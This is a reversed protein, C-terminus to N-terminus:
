DGRLAHLPDVKTAWRAPIYAAVAAVLALLATLSAFVPPEIRIVGFVANSIAQTLLLSVGLGFTLGLLAMKLASAMVLRLVDFPRAGLAMRIGIEHTRQTVSYAMVAFIGAAALALAILGFVLMMRASSEVGSVNDSVVQELTRVDYAPTGPDISRLQQTVSRALSLPDASTRVLVASSAQPMQAFPVYTTPNPKPEFASSRIDRVVGVVRREPESSEPRGLKVRKGIPDQDPWNAHAMSESIVAVPPADPGDASSIFRGKILPVHLTRFFDPTVIQSVTSPVEGASAPPHGEATYETWNWSWGSPLSTACAVNDVSPMTQLQHLLRDYYSQIQDKKQYKEKPLAIHFTLVHTRDFGMEVALLSRFGSVMLGAGVLLILALATETIVLVGRLRGASRGATSSRTSEKLADNLDSGSFRFAPALGALIGSCLAVALTFLLVRFDVAVHKLGPVHAMVFPPLDRRLLEMGWNALLAGAAGGALALLTSEVLLQRILQWRSAGMGSRIAMEKQRSSARALQLNAVNVGALLLVFVACGMLVMVFQWTGNTADEALRIVRVGHGANSGPFQEALRGAVAQLDATASSVSANKNLRGLVLLSHTERDTSEVSHLDFPTWIQAGAPFDLDSGAIGVITFKRGNLLLTKGLVTRDGALHREWFGHSLVVVTAAGQQLDVSSIQRGLEAPVGLLPFFNSTVQYGEVREAVGEGTLNADWGRTAALYEFSKSQENWDHFNAPAVSVRYADQKPVTEWIAVVRDLGPLSFPRLILANVNSFIATNAGIGLAMTLVAVTTFAPNNRLQRLGYRCDSIVAHLWNGIGADRVQEKVQEVGGLEIRAARQAEEPPMGARINEEILMELHSRVEQDLEADVRSSLFLNRLLSRVKVLFPLTFV